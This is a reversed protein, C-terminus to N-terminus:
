KRFRRVVTESTFRGNCGPKPLSVTLFKVGLHLPLEGVSVLAREPTISMYRGHPNALPLPKIRTDSHEGPMLETGESRTFTMPPDIKSRPWQHVLDHMAVARAADVTSCQLSHQENVCSSMVSRAVDLSNPSFRCSPGHTM